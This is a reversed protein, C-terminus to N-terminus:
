EKSSREAPREKSLATQHEAKLAVPQEGLEVLLRTLDLPKRLIADFGAKLLDRRRLGIHPYSTLGILRIHAGVSAVRQAFVSPDLPESSGLDLVVAGPRATPLKAAATAGDHATITEFGHRTLLEVLLDAIDRYKEVILVPRM